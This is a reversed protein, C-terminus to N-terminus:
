IYQQKTSNGGENDIIIKLKKMRENVFTWEWEQVRDIMLDVGRSESKSDDNTGATTMM